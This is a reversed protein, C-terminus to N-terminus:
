SNYITGETMTGCTVVTGTTVIWPYPEHWPRPYIVPPPCYPVYPAVTIPPRDELEKVRRELEAIREKDTQPKAHEAGCDPCEHTTM